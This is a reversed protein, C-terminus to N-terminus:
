RQLLEKKKFEKFKKYKEEIDKRKYGFRECARLIDLNVEKNSGQINKYITSQSVEAVLAFEELTLNKEEKIKKLPNKM